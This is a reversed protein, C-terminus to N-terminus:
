RAGAAGGSRTLAAGAPILLALLGLLVILPWVTMVYRVQVNIAIACFLLYAALGLAVILGLGVEPALPRRRILSWAAFAVALVIGLLAAAHALRLAWAPLRYARAVVAMRDFGEWFETNSWDPRLRRAMAVADELGAAGPFEALVFFRVFNGLVRGAFRMPQREIVALSVQLAVADSARGRSKALNGIAAMVEPNLGNLQSGFEMYNTFFQRGDWTTLAADSARWLGASRILAAELAQLAERESPPSAKATLDGPQVVFPLKGILNIGLLSRAEAGGIAISHGVREVGVTFATAAIAVLAGILAPRWRTRAVFVAVLPAAAVM